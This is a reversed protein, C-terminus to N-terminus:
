RKDGLDYVPQQGVAFPLEYDDEGPAPQGPHALEYDPGTQLTAVDYIAASQEVVNAMDYQRASQHRVSARKMRFIRTAAADTQQYIPEAQALVQLNSYIESASVAATTAQPPPPQTL